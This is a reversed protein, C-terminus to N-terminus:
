STKGIWTASFQNADTANSLTLTSGNTHYVQAVIYDNAAFAYTGSVQFTSSTGGTGFGHDIIRTTNNKQVMLEVLNACGATFQLKYNLVYIGATNFTIRSYVAPTGSTTVNDHMTADTDYSNAGDWYLTTVVGTAATQSAGSINCRVAPPVMVNNVNTQVTNYGTATLVDGTNVSTLNTYTKAM